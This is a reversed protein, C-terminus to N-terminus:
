FKSKSKSIQNKTTYRYYNPFNIEKLFQENVLCWVGFVLSM